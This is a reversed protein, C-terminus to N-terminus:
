AGNPKDMPRRAAQRARVLALLQAGPLAASFLSGQYDDCGAAALFNRQIETEVGEATISLKMTRALAVTAQIIAEDHSDSGVDKVFSRDIKLRDLPFRKLYNLSSYGTGFDDLTLRVGLRRLEDLMVIAQEPHAMAASETIELELLEAPLGTDALAAAVTSALDKRRFQRPSLNVAVELALGQEVWAKAQACATRLVWRGIPAILGTEEAIPILQVPSVEGFEADHWRLLAEVGTVAGTQLSVKPQYHLLLDGHELARRLRSELAVRGGRRQEADQAHYQYANGGDHKVRWMAIEAHELLERPNRTGRPYVAIGISASAFVENEGIAFPASFIDAAKEAAATVEEIDAIDAVLIAFEDGGVRAITDAEHLQEKLRVTVQRLLEDGADAGLSENVRKFRDLDLLLVGVLENRRLARAVARDARDRLLKRNPLDTLLDHQSLHAVQAQAYKSETIDRTVALVSATEHAPLHLLATTSQLWRRSGNFGAAEFEITCSEGTLTKALSETFRSRYEPLVFNLLGHSRVQQLSEAGLMALGSRNIELLAGDSSILKICEPENDLIARLRAESAKVAAEARVQETVDILMAYLGRVAGDAAIDPVRYVDLQRTTGDPTSRTRRYRGGRGYLMERLSAAGADDDGIFERLPVGIAREPAVGYLDAYQQNAFRCALSADFYAIGAPV